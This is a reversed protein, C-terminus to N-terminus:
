ISENAAEKEEAKDKLKNVLEDIQKTLIINKAVLASKELQYRAVEKSLDDIIIALEEQTLNMHEGGIKFAM